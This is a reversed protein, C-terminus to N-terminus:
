QELIWIRKPEPECPWRHNYAIEEGASTRYIFDGDPGFKEIVEAVIGHVLVLDGVKIEIM